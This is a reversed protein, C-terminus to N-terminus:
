LDVAVSHPPARRHRGAGGATGHRLNVAVSDPPARRHCGAGDAVAAPLPARLVARLRVRGRKPQGPHAPRASPFLRRRSESPRSPNWADPPRRGLHDTHAAELPVAPVSNSFIVTSSLRSVCKTWRSRPASLVTTKRTSRPGSALRCFLFSPSPSSRAAAACDHQFPLPALQVPPVFSLPAHSAIEEHSAASVAAPAQM